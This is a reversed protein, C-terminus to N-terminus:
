LGVWARAAALPRRLIWYALSVNEGQLKATGKLGVRPPQGSEILKARVRYAYHGGPREIAEHAVYRLSAVVPQLPDANLYLKVEAGQDLPIADAPSLWVEIEAAHENAVVMVKEGTVVPRGVWESPDDFMVIGDRPSSVLGRANLERLYSVEAQKEAIEGQLVALQAKSTQEFLAQQAKQRYEAQLTALSRGAVQLRNLLSARDFEFLPDHQTVRQNPSVLVRDIVGDLPARIIAPDLPVLEAPALVTLPVRIFLTAILAVTLWLRWGTSLRRLSTARSSIGQDTGPTTAGTLRRWFYHVFGLDRGLLARAQTWIAAWEALLACEATTWPQDRTLLLYGGAFDSGVAPLRLLLGHPPLWDNWHDREADPLDATRLIQPAPGAITHQLHRFIKDLWLVYPANAEPSVVGSVAGVGDGNVWLAAQRYPALAHTENVAIFDLEAINRAERARRALGILSALAQAEPQIGKDHSMRPTM